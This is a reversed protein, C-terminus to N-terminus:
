RSPVLANTEKFEDEWGDVIQRTRVFIRTGAPPLGYRKLYLATIDYRGRVPAPLLGITAFTNWVEIGASCPRSALVVVLAAPATAVELELRVKGNRNTIILQEVPNPKFTVPEPAEMRPPLGAGALACNIKVFVQCGHLRADTEGATRCKVRRALARWRARQADSLKRWLRSFRACASQARLRAESNHRGRRPRSRVVQGYKSDVSVSDGLTGSPRGKRIKM